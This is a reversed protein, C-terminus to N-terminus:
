LDGIKQLTAHGLTKEGKLYRVPAVLGPKVWETGPKAVIGKV